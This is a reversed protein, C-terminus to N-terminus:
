GKINGTIKNQVEAVQGLRMFHATAKTGPWQVTKLVFIYMDGVHELIREKPSVTKQTEKEKISHIESESLM